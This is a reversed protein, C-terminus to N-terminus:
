SGEGATSHGRWDQLAGHEESEEGLVPPYITDLVEVIKAIRGKGLREVARLELPSAKFFRRPTKFHMLIKHALERSIGPMMALLNLQVNEISKNSKLVKVKVPQFYGRRGEEVQHKYLCYILLATESPSETQVVSLGMDVIAALAGYVQPYGIKRFRLARALSGELVLIPKPYAQLMSRAQEFLRRDIISAIFDSTSKRELCIERGVVYDGVELREFKLPVNMKILESAVAGREERYDVLIM